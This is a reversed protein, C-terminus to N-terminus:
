VMAAGSDIKEIRGITDAIVFACFVENEAIPIDNIFIAEGSTQYLAEIKRIPQNM